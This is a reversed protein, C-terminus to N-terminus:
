KGVAAPLRARSCSVGAGSPRGPRGRPAPLQSPGRSGAASTERSGRSRPVTVARPREDREVVGDPESSAVRGDRVVGALRNEGPRRRDDAVGDNQRQPGVQRVAVVARAPADDGLVPMALLTDERERDARAAPRRGRHETRASGERPRVHRQTREVQGARQRRGAHEREPQQHPAQVDVVELRGDGAQKNKASSTANMPAPPRACVAVAPVRKASNALIAASM